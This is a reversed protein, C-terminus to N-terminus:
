RLPSYAAARYLSIQIVSSIQGSKAISEARVKVWEPDAGFAAWAKERAALDDFPTLYVLNPKSPGILTSSYLVPRIGCRHFIRIEPGSFREHLAKLQRETPSHYVRLEFVRPAAGDKAGPALPPTYPAAELLVESYSEYPAEEGQEWAALAAQYKPDAARRARSEKMEELSAYPTVCAVQPMHAAVLAELVAVPGPVRLRGAAELPGAKMFEALRPGQSGNKLFYQELLFYRPAQTEANAATMMVPAGAMQIFTRRQM